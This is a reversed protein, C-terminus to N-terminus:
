LTKQVVNGIIFLMDCRTQSTLSKKSYDLENKIVLIKMTFEYREMYNESM